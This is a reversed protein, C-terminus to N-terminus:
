DWLGAERAWEDMQAPNPKVEDPGHTRDVFQM